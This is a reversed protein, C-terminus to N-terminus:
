ERRRGARLSNLITVVDILEQLGAGVIAPIVGFAAVLMLVLSLGIGIGISQMAIRITRQALAVTRPVRLLDEVLVVVDASESAATAGRAGMAVGVDALALVPADNVGDGVMLVPRPQLDHVAAVKDAPLLRARVEDIGCRAGIAEATEVSDGSLMVTRTVGLGRLLTLAEASEPRLEDTLVIRGALRGDLAVHVAMEGAGLAAWTPRADADVWDQRGVSVAVGDVTGHIGRGMVEAVGTAARSSGSAATVVAQALVHASDQEVSAAASLVRDAAGSEVTDVRLVVPEGRTLTGTKDFAATRVRALRELVGGNKIIVGFGAARSMGAIFAVPAAILLPCPTAVVLVEAFRTPDGSIAWAIGGILFAVATFPLAVRDALRVFPARSDSAARVLDIIAQYQSGAATATARIRIVGGGNVAGSAVADGAAHVVPLSEGTLSSEDLTADDDLVIGDVPLVEGPRVEVIDGVVIEGVPVDVTDGNQERHAFRPARDLLAGLERRARQSAYDELAEGGTLMLVVVLAAWYDGLVVTAVIATVALIDIGWTGRRLARIMSILSRTAIVLAWASAPWLAWAPLVAVLVGTLAAIGLTTLVLPYRRLLALM